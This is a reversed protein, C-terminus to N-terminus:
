LKTGSLGAVVYNIALAQRLSIGIAPSADPLEYGKIQGRDFHAMMHMVYGRGFPFVVALAGLRDPDEQALADSVALVRVKEKNFIRILHCHIDMKWAGNTVAHRFLAPHKGVISAEYMKQKNTAGSWAIFGPFVHQNLRDLMWDTTLLYGGNIVFDRIKIGGNWSLNNPGCDIIVVQANSLDYADFAKKNMIKYPLGLSELTREAQDYKDSIVVLREAEMTSTQLSFGPHTQELWGRYTKPPAMTARGPLAMRPTEIPGDYQASGQLPVRVTTTPNAAPELTSPTAETPNPLAKLSQLETSQAQAKVFCLLTCCTATTAFVKWWFKNSANKTIQTKLKRQRLQKVLPM